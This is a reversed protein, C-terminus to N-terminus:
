NERPVFIDRIHLRTEFILYEHEHDFCTFPGMDLAKIYASSDSSEFKLMIGQDCFTLAVQHVTTTSTPASFTCYLTPFLLETSMGHYLVKIKQDTSAFFVFAEYLLKGTMAFMKHRQKQEIKTENSHKARYTARFDTCLQSNCAYSVLAIIHDLRLPDNPYIQHHENMGNYWVAKLQKVFSMSSKASAQKEFYEFRLKNKYEVFAEKNESVAIQLSQTANELFMSMIEEQLTELDCILEHKFVDKLIKAKEDICLEDWLEWQKIEIINAHKGMSWLKAIPQMSVYKEIKPKLNEEYFYKKIFRSGTLIQMLADIFMNKISYVHVLQYKEENEDIVMENRFLKHLIKIFQDDWRINVILKNNKDNSLASTLLDSLETTITNKSLSKETFLKQNLQNLSQQLTHLFQNFKKLNMKRVYETLKDELKKSTFAKAKAFTLELLKVITCNSRFKFEQPLNNLLCHMIDTIQSCNAEELQLTKLLKDNTQEIDSYVNSYICSGLCSVSIFKKTVLEMSAQQLHLQMSKITEIQNQLLTLEDHKRNISKLYEILEEKISKYKPKVYLPHHSFNPTYRYQEGFAYYNESAVADVQDNSTVFKNNSSHMTVGTQKLEEKTEHMDSWFQSVNYQKLLSYM